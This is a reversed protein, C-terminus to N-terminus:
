GVSTRDAAGTGTYLYTSFVDEVYTFPGGYPWTGAQQAQLQQELTWIGSASLPAPTVPTKTILGGPYRKSM